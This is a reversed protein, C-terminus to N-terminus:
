MHNMKRIQLNYFIVSISQELVMKQLICQILSGSKNKKKYVKEFILEVNEVHVGLYM